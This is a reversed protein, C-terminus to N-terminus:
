AARGREAAVLTAGDLWERAAQRSRLWAAKSRSVRGNRWDIVVEVADNMRACNSRLLGVSSCEPCHELHWVIARM